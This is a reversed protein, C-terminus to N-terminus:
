RKNITASIPMFNQMYAVVFAVIGPALNGFCQHLFRYLIVFFVIQM